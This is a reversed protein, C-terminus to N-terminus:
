PRDRLAEAERGLVGMVFFIVAAFLALMETLDDLYAGGGFAALAVNAFFVAFCLCAALLPLNGSRRM